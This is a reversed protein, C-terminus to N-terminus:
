AAFRGLAALAENNTQVMPSLRARGQDTKAVRLFSRGQQRTLRRMTKM